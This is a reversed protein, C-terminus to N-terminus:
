RKYSQVVDNLAKLKDPPMLHGHSAILPPSDASHCLGAHCIQGNDSSAILLRVIQENSAYRLFPNLTEFNYEAGRFSGSRQVAKIMTDIARKQDAKFIAPVINRENFKKPDVRTSQVNNMFGPSVTADIAFPIITKIKRFIAIGSEQMCYPSALYNSSLIAIFLDAKSLEDQIIIEM